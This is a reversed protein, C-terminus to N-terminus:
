QRDRRAVDPNKQMRFIRSENALPKGGRVVPRAQVM